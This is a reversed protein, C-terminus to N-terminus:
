AKPHDEKVSTVVRQNMEFSPEQVETKGVIQAPVGVVTYHPPVDDLVVSGAGVKAGEGIVVNGLIKAGAGIMVSKRVKPHRDGTEKGTGGLTVEHLISVNDDIVATEGIVLSTAHDFLIGKGIIAAPHIDVAFVESMRNQIFYAMTKRGNKWLWHALRYAQLAQYGKLFLMIEFYHVAAPDREKTAVLDYTAFEVAEPCNRYFDEFLGQLVLPPFHKSGLKVSLLMALSSGFDSYGTIHQELFIRIQPDRLCEDAAETVMKSWIGKIDIGM